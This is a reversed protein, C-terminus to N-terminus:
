GHHCTRAVALVSVRLAGARRLDRCCEALTGGTTLIDDVLLVHRGRVVAADSRFAGRVNATRGVASLGAQSPTDRVRQMAEAALPLGLARAPGAALELAQNFGRRALRSPHLPVPAVMDPSEHGSRQWARAALGRLLGALSLRGRLKFALLLDRLLGEYAGHFALADWAPPKALCDPCRHDATDSVPFPLGCDPCHGGRLPALALACDPCLGQGDPGELPRCARGCAQCRTHLCSLWAWPRM